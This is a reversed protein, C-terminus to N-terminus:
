GMAFFYRIVVVVVVIVGVRTSNYDAVSLFLIWSIKGIEHFHALVMFNALKMFILLFWSTKSVELFGVKSIPLSIRISNKKIFFLSTYSFSFTAKVVAVIGM